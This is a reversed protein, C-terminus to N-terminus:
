CRSQVQWVDFHQQIVKGALKHNLKVLIDMGKFFNRSKDFVSKHVLRGYVGLLAANDLVAEVPLKVTQPIDYFVAFANNFIYLLTFFLM